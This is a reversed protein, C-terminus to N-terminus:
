FGVGELERVLKTVTVGSADLKSCLKQGIFGNAGTILASKM